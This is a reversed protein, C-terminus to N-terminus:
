RRGSPRGLQALKAILIDMAVEEPTEGLKVSRDAAVILSVAERLGAEGLSRARRIAIQRGQPWNRNIAKGIAEEGAGEALMDLVTGFPRYAGLLTAFLQLREAGDALLVEMVAHARGINGELVADTFHFHMAERQGGCIEDVDDITADRGMTYLGLKRLENSVGLTDGPHLNALLMAPDTEAPRMWESERELPRRSPGNRFRIGHMAAEQRVFKALEAGKLEPYEEFTVDPLPRLANALANRRGAKGTLVLISTPPLGSKVADVLPQWPKLGRDEEGPALDRADWRTEFRDLLDEVVVMRKPALFPMATAAAIVDFAKADRAALVTLNTSLMGSGGDAEDRLEQLRRQMALVDAGSLVITVVAVGAGPLM